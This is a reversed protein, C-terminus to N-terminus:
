LFLPSSLLVYLAVMGVCSTPVNVDGESIFCSLVAKSVMTTQTVTAVTM